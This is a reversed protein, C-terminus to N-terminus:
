NSCRSPNTYGSFCGVIYVLAAALGAVVGWVIGGNVQYMEKENLEM